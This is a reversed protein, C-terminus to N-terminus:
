LGLTPLEIRSGAVVAPFTFFKESEQKKKARLSSPILFMEAIAENLLVTRFRTGDFYMKQPFIYMILQRKGVSDYKKYLSLLRSICSVANKLIREIKVAGSVVGELQVEFQRIKQDCDAKFHRYEDADIEGSYYKNRASTLKVNVTQIQAIIDKRKGAVTRNTNKKSYEAMLENEYIELLGQKVEFSFLLKEFTSNLDESKFRTKCGKTCHYYTYYANYGKSSSGTLQRGCKECVILQRLPLHDLSVMKPGYRGKERSALIEQVKYYLSESIIPEHQGEALYAEEDKYKAIEIKGCYTPNRIVGWFHASGCKLGKANIQKRVQDAAFEGEAIQEFAWKVLSAEPEQIAIYKKGNETVKNKYGLPAPGMYRGEKRARRMGNFTNMARRDNEVEPTALYVALMIKSEPVSMDLPQEIAQPDIGLSRLKSIMAYADGANRSFRDWKTFLVLDARGKQKKLTKLFEIWAPRKFTKASHDEFIVQGVTYGSHECYRTLRDHQDRQSYGKDAQEDTSVRVYLHATKM